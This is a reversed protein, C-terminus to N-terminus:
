LTLPSWGGLARVELSADARRTGDGKLQARIEVALPRAALELAGELVAAGREAGLELAFHPGEHRLDGEALSSAVARDRGRHPSGAGGTRDTPRVAGIRQRKQDGTVADHAALSRFRATSPCLPLA